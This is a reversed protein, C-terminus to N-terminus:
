PHVGPFFYPYFKLGALFSIFSGSVLLLFDWSTLGEPLKTLLLDLDYSLPRSSSSCLCSLLHFSYTPLYSPMHNEWYSSVLYDWLFQLFLAWSLCSEFIFLFVHVSTICSWSMQLVYCFLIWKVKASLLTEKIQTSIKINSGCLM